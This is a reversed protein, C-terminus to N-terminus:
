RATAPRTMLAVAVWTVGNFILEIAVCLGIFVLGSLPWQVWLLIGLLVSILGSVLSAGWGPYQAAASGVIRFVGAVVLFIALFLTVDVAAEGPQIIFYIGAILYILALLVHLVIQGGHRSTFARVGHVGAGLVLLVGLVFIVAFTLAVSYGLGILGLIIEAIGLVLLLGWPARAGGAFSSNPNALSM